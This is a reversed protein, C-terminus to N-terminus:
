TLSPLLHVPRGAVLTGAVPLSSLDSAPWDIPDAGFITLDARCGPAIRGSCHEEAGAYAAGLTFAQLAQSASVGQQPLYASQDNASV